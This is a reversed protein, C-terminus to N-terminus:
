GPSRRPALPEMAASQRAPLRRSTSWAAAAGFIPLPAPVSPRSPASAASGSLSFKYAALSNSSWSSGGNISVVLSNGISWGPEGTELTGTVAWDYAGAGSSVGSVLWYTTSPTLPQLTSLTFTANGIPSPVSGPNTFTFLQSGPLGANNSYISAFLNGAASQNLSLTVSDVNYNSSGTTFSIGRWGSSSLGDTGFFSGSLNDVMTIASASQGSAMAAILVLGLSPGSVPRPLSIKM